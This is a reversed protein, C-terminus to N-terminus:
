TPSAPSSKPLNTFSTLPGSGGLATAPYSDPSRSRTSPGNLPALLLKRAAPNPGPKPPPAVPREASHVAPVAVAPAPTPGEEPNEAKPKKLDPHLRLLLEAAKLAVREDKSGLLRELTAVGLAIAGATPTLTASM